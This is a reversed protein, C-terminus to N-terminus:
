ESLARFPDIRTARRAPVVCALLAVLALLGAVAALVSPEMPSVGFLQSELGRRVALVGATGLVLGGAILLLGERLVLKFVAAASSGLAIRIALERTRQAVLYALVGYIGIASLFLAVTGFGLSLLVPTRRTALSRETRETMTRVDFVPLERDVQSLAGKLGSALAAPDQTSRLAFTLARTTNQAMPFYCAGVLGQGETLSGLKVDAIVGVVELFVTDKTIALLDNIDNPRYMRRGIPDQNPWFRRALREDVIVVQPADAGDRDEFFRGRVLRVEM